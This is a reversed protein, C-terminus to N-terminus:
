DLLAAAPRVDAAEFFQQTGDIFGPHYKEYLQSGARRAIVATGSLGAWGTM